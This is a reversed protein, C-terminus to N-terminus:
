RASIGRAIVVLVGGLGIALCGTILAAWGLSLGLSLGAATVLAYFLAGLVLGLGLSGLIQQRKENIM